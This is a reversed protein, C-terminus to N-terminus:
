VTEKWWTVGPVFREAETLPQHDYSQGNITFNSRIKSRIKLENVGGHLGGREFSSKPQFLLFAGRPCKRPNDDSFGEWFGAIFFKQGYLHLKWDESEVNELCHKDLGVLVQRLAAGVNKASESFTKPLNVVAVDIKKDTCNPLVEALTNCIDSIDEYCNPVEYINANKAFPCHTEQKVITFSENRVIGREIYM